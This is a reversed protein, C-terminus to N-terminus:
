QGARRIKVRNTPMAKVVPRAGRSQGLAQAAPATPKPGTKFGPAAAAPAMLAATSLSPVPLDPTEAVYGSFRGLMSLFAVGAEVEQPSMEREAAAAAKASGTLNQFQAIVRPDSIIVLVILGFCAVFALRLLWRVGTGLASIPAASRMQSTMEAQTM